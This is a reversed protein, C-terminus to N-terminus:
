PPNSAIWRAMMAQLDNVYGLSRLEALTVHQAKAAAPLRSLFLGYRKWIHAAGHLTPRSSKRVLFERVNEIVRKPDDGHPKPDLGAADSLSAQYRYPVSDLILLHHDRGKSAFEHMCYAIGAEFPMNFRPVKLSGGREVRSLDHISYMSGAVEKAIRSLRIAAGDDILAHRAQFGLDHTAFVSAGLLPKYKKDFPCNIFVHSSNITPLAAM